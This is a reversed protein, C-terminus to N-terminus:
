RRPTSCRCRACSARTSSSGREDITAELIVLGEVQAARAIDPYIPAVDVLKRPERIVGGPRYAAPPAPAPPPSPLLPPSALGEVPVGGIAGLPVGADDGVGEVMPGATTVAPMPPGIHDAAATPAANNRALISVTRLLPPPPAPAAAIFDTARALDALPGASPRRNRAARNVDHPVGGCSRCGVRPAHVLADLFEKGAPARVRRHAKTITM